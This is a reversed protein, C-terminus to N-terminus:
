LEGKFAKDLLSPFIEDLENVTDAHYKQVTEVQHKFAAFEEQKEKHPVPVKINMLKNLGLTKNRGAGGPSAKNIDELGQPTLFHYCLFEAVAKESNVECSIFRHSGFRNDDEIRAVAIAGEWAFVNSFLLDGTRIKYLTKSGVDFGSLPQKQFTGRGFCRIGLEPYLQNEDINVERRIIPAVDIMPVWEVGNILEIYKSYLLLRIEKHQSARLARIENVKKSVGALLKICQEQKDILPLLVERSLLKNIKLRVRNTSGESCAKCVEVFAKHRVYLDFYETKVIDENINFLLFDGTVVSNDLEPPVIGMAGNRADIKSIIFQGKQALHQKSLIESGNVTRRLECGRNYLRLKIQKYIKERDIEVVDSRPILIDSLKYPKLM